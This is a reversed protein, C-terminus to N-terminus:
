TMIIIYEADNRNTKKLLLVALAVSSAYFIYFLAIM